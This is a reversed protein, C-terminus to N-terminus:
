AARTLGAEADRRPTDAEADPPLAVRDLTDDVPSSKDCRPLPEAAIVGAEAGNSWVSGSESEADDSENM